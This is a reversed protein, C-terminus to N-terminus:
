STVRNVYLAIGKATEDEASIVEVKNKNNMKNNNINKCMVTNTNTFVAWRM